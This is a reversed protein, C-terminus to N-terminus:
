TSMHINEPNYCRAVTKTNTLQTETGVVTQCLIPRNGIFQIFLTKGWSKELNKESIQSM